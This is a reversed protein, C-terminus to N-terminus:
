EIKNLALDYGEKFPLSDSIMIGDLETLWKKGSLKQQVVKHWKGDVFIKTIKYSPLNVEKIVKDIKITEM